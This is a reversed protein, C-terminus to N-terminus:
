APVTFEPDALNDPIQEVQGSMAVRGTVSSRDIRRPTRSSVKWHEPGVDYAAEAVFLDGRRLYIVGDSACLRVASDILAQLVNDLGFASRSIVKLVDATATQQQLAETLDNTRAQVEEFLRANEIAIVAQSAFSTLLAIQKDTFPRVEQRHMSITGSVEGDKLLPVSLMTRAKFLRVINVRLPDGEAYAPDNMVDDIHAYTRTALVRGIATHPGPRMLTGGKNFEEWAPTAGYAAV